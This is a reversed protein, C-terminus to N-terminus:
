DGKKPKTAKAKVAKTKPKATPTTKPKTQTTRKPAKTKPPKQTLHTVGIAIADAINDNDLTLKFKKNIAIIVDEKTARGSGAATAKITAPYYYTMPIGEQAGLLMLVGRLQSLAKLTTPKRGLFQEECAIAVPQYKHILTTLENYEYLLVKERTRAHPTIAGYDILKMNLDMIAWGTETLSPDLSMILDMFEFPALSPERKGGLM